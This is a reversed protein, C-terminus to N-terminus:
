SKAMNPTRELAKIQKRKEEFPKRRAVSLDDEVDAQLAAGEGDMRQWGQIRQWLSPQVADADADEAAAQPAEAEGDAQHTLLWEENSPLPQPETATQEEVATQEEDAEEAAIAQPAEVEGGAPRM